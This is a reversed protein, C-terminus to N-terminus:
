ALGHIYGHKKTWQMKIGVQARLQSKRVEGGPDAHINPMFRFKGQKGLHAFKINKLSLAVLYNNYPAGLEKFVREFKFMFNMDGVQMAQGKFGYINDGPNTNYTGSSAGLKALGKLATSGCFCMYERTDSFEILGDALEAIDAYALTDSGANIRLASANGALQPLIGKSTIIVTTTTFSSLGCWALHALDKQFEVKAYKAKAAESNPTTRLATDDETLTWEWARRVIQVRNTVVSPYTYSATASTSATETAAEGLIWLTKATAIPGNSLRSVTLTTASGVATVRAHVGAADGATYHLIDGVRCGASSVVTLATATTTIAGNLVVARTQYEGEWTYFEPSDVRESNEKKMLFSSIDWRSMTDDYEVFNDYDYDHEADKNNYRDFYGKGTTYVTAM